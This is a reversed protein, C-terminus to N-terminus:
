AEEWILDFVLFAITVFVLDYAVLMWLWRQFDVLERGDLVNATLGVGAVFVPVMVPLLLVPLITERARGGASLAAFLTGVSVYGITGLLVGVLIWLRLVNIDFIVLTVPLIIAETLLMFALHALVKGFYIASRDVPALLLAALSGRDLEAGFSRNLGLVGTFLIVVWLVGPTVMKADPVRLDFALGFVLVALLGFAVMTSFSEKARLEAQLDKAAVAWVKRFYPGCAAAPACTSRRPRWCPSRANSRPQPRFADHTSREGRRLHSAVAVGSLHETDEQHAIKGGVLLSVSDSWAVARDLNHTSLLIARNDAGLRRVFEHLMEASEQDLGTDPEDLLLVPPNHLIARGIALRQVMGRSYTRVPDRRRTWLDVGRLVAEIREAPDQLDYMAAFFRLNEEATLHDYLLRPTASWGM